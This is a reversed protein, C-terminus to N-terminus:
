IGRKRESIDKIKKCEYMAHLMQKAISNSVNFEKAILMVWEKNDM